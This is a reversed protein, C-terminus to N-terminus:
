IDLYMISKLTPHRKDLKKNKQIWAHICKTKDLYNINYFM